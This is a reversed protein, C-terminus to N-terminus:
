WVSSAARPGEPQNFPFKWLPLPYYSGPAYPGSEPEVPNSNQAQDARLLKSWFEEAKTLTEIMTVASQPMPSHIVNDIYSM